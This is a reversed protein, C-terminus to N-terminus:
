EALPRLRGDDLREWGAGGDHLREGGRATLLARLIEPTLGAHLRRVTGDVTVIAPDVYHSSLGRPSRLAFDMTAFDLDRPEMWHVGAGLNEVVLITSAPDDTIAERKAPTSGPWATEPGVVALYNTTTGGPSGLGHLAFVRPMRGALKANNPGDWPEDFRYADYLKQEEIYPLILVRWSHRPTGAEDALYAPPFHGHASEYNAVAM